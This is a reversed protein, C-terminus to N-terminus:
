GLEGSHRPALYTNALLSEAIVVLALIFLLAHWLEISEAIRETSATGAAEDSGGMADEWRQLTQPDMPALLSERPDPNVAVTYNGQPTYVEYFGTKDLQIRQSRTTDALSLVNEGDPDIVQGSAGGSSSLPLVDGAAFSREIREAGSLYRAAEVAFSVFVPRVPLDNWQNELGAAVLLARGRGIRREILFPEDNELSILVDDDIGTDVPVTRSVNVAFWGDTGALLPHTMDVQGVSLFDSNGRAVSAGGIGNGFIPIRVAAADPQGSFALLGGGQEVFELLDRELASTIVALDDVIIWEFRSLTRPDFRDTAVPQVQWNGSRDAHLAATLYTVPLGDPDATLVPIPAPPAIRVVHFRRSDLALSDPTTISAEVRNDGEEFVVGDFNLTSMGPGSVARSGAASGNVSLEVNASMPDDRGTATVVVDVGSPTPRITDISWNDAIEVSPSHAQLAAIRSSVLDSFRTPLGSDQLDSVFHVTVPAPLDDALRDLAAMAQGFDLRAADTGLTQLAALQANRDFSLDSLQRVTHGAAFVQLLAGDPAGDIAERALDLAADFVDQRTMSASTDVVVLHTGEPAPGPLTDPDSWLPKAFAFAILVLLAVRMALLAKYKLQKRVHIRQESTELLMASSFPKRDSSQTQLRHLWFPLAVAFLGLLFLPALLSM